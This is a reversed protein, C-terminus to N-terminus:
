IKNEKQLFLFLFVLAALLVVAVAVGCDGGVFEAVEPSEAERTAYALAEEGSGERVPLVALIPAALMALIRM